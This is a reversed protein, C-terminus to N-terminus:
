RSGQSFITTDLLGEMSLEGLANLLQFQANNYKVIAKVYDTQAKTLAEQAQLIELVIGEGHKLRNQSIDLTKEAAILGKETASIQERAVLVEEYAKVVDSKISEQVIKERIRHEQLQAKASKVRGIASGSLTWGVFGDLISRSTIDGFTPGIGGVRGGVDVGPGFAEWWAAKKAADASEVRLYAEQVEPHEAIAMDVLQDPTLAPDVITIQRVETDKPTLVITPEIKLTLALELSDKRFENKALLLGQIDSQLRAEARFVDVKLGAGQKELMETIRLLERSQTVTKEAINIQSQAEQLNFYQQAAILLTNQVVQSANSHTAELAKSAA